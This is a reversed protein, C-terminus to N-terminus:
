ERIIPHLKYAAVPVENEDLELLTAGREYGVQHLMSWQGVSMTLIVHPGTTPVDALPIRNLVPRKPPKSM